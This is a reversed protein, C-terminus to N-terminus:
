LEPPMRLEAGLQMVHVSVRAGGITLSQSLLCCQYRKPPTYVFLLVGSLVQPSRIRLTPPEIKLADIQRM